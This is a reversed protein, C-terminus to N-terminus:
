QRFLDINNKLERSSPSLSPFFLFGIDIDKSEEIFFSSFVCYKEKLQMLHSPFIKVQHRHVTESSFSATCFECPIM